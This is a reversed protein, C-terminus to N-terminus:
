LRSPAARLPTRRAAGGIAIAWHVLGTAAGILFQLATIGGAAQLAAEAFRGVRARGLWPLLATVAGAGGAYWLVSRLGIVEGVLAIFTPPAVLLTFLGTGLASVLAVAREDPPYGAALDNFISWVTAF